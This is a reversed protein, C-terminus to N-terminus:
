TGGLAVAVFFHMDIGFYFRSWEPDSSNTVKSSIATGTYKDDCWYQRGVLNFKGGCQTDTHENAVQWLM